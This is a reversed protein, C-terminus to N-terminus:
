KCNHLNGPLCQRGGLYLVKGAKVADNLAEM